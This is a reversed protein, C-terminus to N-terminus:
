VFITLLMDYADTDVASLAASSSISSPLSVIVVVNIHTKEEKGM